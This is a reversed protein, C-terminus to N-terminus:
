KLRRISHEEVYASLGATGFERGIGSQKIGGFPMRLDLSDFSHTNIFTSGAEIRRASTRDRGRLDRPHADAFDPQM